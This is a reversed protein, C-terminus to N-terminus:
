PKAGLVAARVSRLALEADVLGEIARLVSADIGLLQAVRASAAREAESYRDAHAVVIADYLMRRAHPGDAFGNLIKALDLKATETALVQQIAEEPVGLHRGIEAFAEREKESLGDASVIALLAQGFSTMVELSAAEPVAGYHMTAFFENPVKRSM